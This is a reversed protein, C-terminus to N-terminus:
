KAKGFSSHTQVIKWGENTKQLLSTSVGKSKILKSDETLVIDYMYTETTFAYDGSVVVDIKYDHFKFSKFEKMEPGLHHELYHAISGENSGQEFITSNEVFLKTIDTTDLKEVANNYAKVVQRVADADTTQAQATLVAILLIAALTFKLYSKKM